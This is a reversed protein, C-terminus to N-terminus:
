EQAKLKKAVEQKRQQEAKSPGAVEVGKKWADIADAKQGLAMYVEGLHDYIEVHKGEEEKVAELLYPLAEKPKKKKFLVWGLSDLYASSDKDDEPKLDPIKRRQKRDEDLAKRIMKEAEDLNKDHSAWLYGLNNNYTPNDPDDALLVKLHETAKDVNDLDQYIVSLILRYRHTFEKLEEEKVGKEKTLNSLLKEYTKVAEDYDGSERQVMGLLELAAPNSKTQDVLRNALKLAEETRGQKVMALVMRQLYPFQQGLKARGGMQELIEKCLKECEEYKKNETLLGTLGLYARSLKDGSELKKAQEANLRYFKESTELDKLGRATAALIFTANINFPQEKEKVMKAAVALLKKSGPADDLLMVIEGRISDDGTIENLRLARARFDDENDAARIPAATFAVLVLLAGAVLRELRNIRMGMVTEGCFMGYALREREHIHYDVFPNAALPL